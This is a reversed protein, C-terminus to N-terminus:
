RHLFRFVHGNRSSCLLGKLFRGGSLDRLICTDASDQFIGYLQPHVMARREKDEEYACGAKEKCYLLRLRQYYYCYIMKIKLYSSFVAM